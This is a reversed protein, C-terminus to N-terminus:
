LNMIEMGNELIGVKIIRFGNQIKDYKSAEESLKNAIASIEVEKNETNSSLIDM